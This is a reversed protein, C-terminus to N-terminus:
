QILNKANTSPCELRQWMKAITFAAAMLMSDSGGTLHKKLTRIEVKSLYVYIHYNSWIRHRNKTRQLVDISCEMITVTISM